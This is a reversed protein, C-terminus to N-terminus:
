RKGRGSKGATGLKVDAKRAAKGRRKRHKRKNSARRKHKAKKKVKPKAQGTAKGPAAFNGVGDFTVSPPTAFIPPAEPVGQCGSGTCQSPSPPQTVGVRADYLDYTANRDQAVLQAETIFFVNSGSEDADVLFSSGQGSGNSLIYICGESQACSGSGDREWEYVDTTGNVDQAVLPQSTEFFVRAGDSSISRVQYAHHGTTVLYGNDISAPPEGSPSCSACWLQGRNADYVYVESVVSGEQSRNDYGTLSQNAMFVLGNGDPTVDATRHGVAPRWNNFTGNGYLGGFYNENESGLTAVHTITGAHYLYLNPTGETAGRALNGEAGFYVYEANDSAGVLGVVRGGPAIDTNVGTSLDDEYLDGNKTYIVRSGDTSATLYKASESILTTSTGNERVYLAGTAIDTWFVRSGDSSIARSANEGEQQEAPPAGFAANPESVGNPLVNVLRLTGEYSEYLNNKRQGGDVADATLADNAEFFLRKGDSSAGAFFNGLSPHRLSGNFSAAGFSSPTTRNPPTVTFAPSTIGHSESRVYLNEYGEPLGSVLPESSTLVATSLDESFWAYEPSHVGPPQINLQRWDGSSGRTAIYENGGNAGESGNGERNPDGVYAVADGDSAARMPRATQISEEGATNGSGVNRYVQVDENEAPTVMEYGREDPLGLLGVPLTSFAVDAGDTEASEGTAVFRIHYTTAPQLGDLQAAVAVIETGDGISSGTTSSGYATTPGYEVRFSAPQGGPDIKASVTASASGVDSFSESVVEPPTAVASAPACWCATLAGVAILGSVYRRVSM